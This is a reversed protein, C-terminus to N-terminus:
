EGVRDLDKQLKEIDENNINKKYIVCDDAFLRITSETNRWIDNVYALFLLPGLVSGQPVGSMIRVEESLQWRVRVRQMHGLLFEREWTVVKLDVGLIATKMLLWDHLVLDFAKLFDIETTDIRYEVTVQLFVPNYNYADLSTSLRKSIKLALLPVTFFTIYDRDNGHFCVPLMSTSIQESWVKACFPPLHDIEHGLWGVGSFSGMYENFLCLDPYEPLSLDRIGAPLQVGYWGVWLM